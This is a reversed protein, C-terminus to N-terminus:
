FRGHLALGVFSPALVPVPVRASRPNADRRQKARLALDTALLAVGVVLVSAGTALLVRGERAYDRYEVDRGDFDTVVEGKPLQIGGAILTALGGAAVVSGALGLPGIPAVRPGTPPDDVPEGGTGEDGEGEGMDTSAAALEDVRALAKPLGEGITRLLKADVCGVCALWPVEALAADRQVDYYIAYELDEADLYEVRVRLTTAAGDDVVEHGAEVIAASVSDHISSRLRERDSEALKSTDVILRLPEGAHAPRATALVGVLALAVIAPRPILSTRPPLHQGM